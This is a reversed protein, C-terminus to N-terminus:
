RVTAPFYRKTREHDVARVLGRQDLTQLIWDADRATLHYHQMLKSRTIGAQASRKIAAYVQEIRKEQITKGVNAVVDASWGRWQEVYSIARLIDVEEVHVKGDDPEQRTAAMLVAVKLGSKSLRDMTPTYLEPAGSELGYQLMEREFRNYRDWADPSLYASFVAPQKVVQDGIKLSMEGTYTDKIKQMEGILKDKEDDQSVTMPGMPKYNKIDSEAQIFVFRPVFGSSVHETDMLELIKNRIGGALIIVIPDRIEITEKRLIRKQYKGDYLKTLTEGMGALYDKTKIAALLGSFEDRWFIGPRGPRGAISTMLGEISGDTALVADPEVELLLDMAMDMATSKRTLTTDALIMFWLNPVMVGFSTPLKVVGSLLASLITFGGAEFYQPAADGRGKAWSMFREVFTDPLAEVQKREDDTLLPREQPAKTGVLEARKALRMEARVIDKWLYTPSRGDRAFKNCKAANAAAFTEEKSAGAELLLLELQWLATSWDGQPENAYLDYASPDLTGSLRKFVDDPDITFVEEPLPVDMVEYGTAQPLKLFEELPYKVSNVDKISVAPIDGLKAYKVNYTLPVRLLQSLDWGSTDAGQDKFAYAIRRSADEADLPEVPTELLWFGQYRNPSTELTISPSPKVVDPPCEDLDAWVVTCIKVNEKNRKATRLLMPSFYMNQGHYNRNIYELMGELQRPYEYYMESLQKSDQQLTAICVWGTEKGFVARFFTERAKNVEPSVRVM